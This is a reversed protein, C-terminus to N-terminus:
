NAGLKGEQPWLEPDSFQKYAPVDSYFFFLTFARLVEGGGKSDRETFYLHLRVYPFLDRRYKPMDFLPLPEPNGKHPVGEIWPQNVHIM